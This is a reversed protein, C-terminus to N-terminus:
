KRVVYLIFHLNMTMTVPINHQTITMLVVMNSIIKRTELQQVSVFSNRLGLVM